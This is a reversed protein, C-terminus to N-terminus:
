RWSLNLYLSLSPLKLVAGASDKKALAPVLAYVRRLLLYEVLIAAMHWCVILLGAYLKSGYTMVQGTVIPAAINAILDISRTFANLDSSHNFM